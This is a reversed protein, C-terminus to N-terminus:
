VNTNLMNWSEYRKLWKYFTFIWLFLFFSSWSVLILFWTFSFNLVLDYPLFVVFFVPIITMFVYKLITWEFIWPPYFSPWLIAEFVWRVINRSSWIFFSLSSFILLFWIFTMSGFVSLVIIKIILLLSLDAIFYMLIFAFLLDWFASVMMANALLRFLINKPLLLHSDLKWQEVITSLSSYWFFFIHIISFIFVNIIMLIAFEWFNMWWIEWFKMFFMYWISVLLIDNLIMVFAQIFFSIKYEIISLFNLKWYQLLIKM